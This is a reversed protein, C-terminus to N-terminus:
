KDGNGLCSWTRLDQVGLFVMDILFIHEAKTVELPEKCYKHIPRITRPALWAAQQTLQGPFMSNVIKEYIKEFTKLKVIKKKELTTFM